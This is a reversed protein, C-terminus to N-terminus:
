EDYEMEFIEWKELGNFNVPNKARKVVGKIFSSSFWWKVSFYRWISPISTSEVIDYTATSICREGRYHPTNFFQGIIPM